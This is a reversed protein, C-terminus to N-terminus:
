GCGRGRSRPRRSRRDDVPDGAGPELRLDARRQDCQEAEPQGPDPEPPQHSRDDRREDRAAVAHHLDEVRFAVEGAAGPDHREAASGAERRQQASELAVARVDRRDNRDGIVAAARSAQALLEPDHWGAVDAVANGGQGVRLREHGLQHLVAERLPRAEVVVCEPVEEDGGHGGDGAVELLRHALGVADERDAALHQRRRAHREVERGPEDGAPM